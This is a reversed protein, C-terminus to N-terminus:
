QIFVDAIEQIMIQMTTNLIAQYKQALLSGSMEGVCCM